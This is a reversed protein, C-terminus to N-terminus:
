DRLAGLARTAIEAMNDITNNAHELHDRSFAGERKTVESLAERLRGNELRAAALSDRLSHMSEVPTQPDNQGDACFPKRLGTLELELMDLDTLTQAHALAREAALNRAEDREGQMVALRRCALVYLRALDHHQDHEVSSMLAKLTTTAEALQAELQEDGM